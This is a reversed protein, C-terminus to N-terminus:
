PWHRSSSQLERRPRTRGTAPRCAMAPTVPARPPDQRAGSAVTTVPSSASTSIAVTLLLLPSLTFGPAAACACRIHNLYSFLLLLFSYVKEYDTGHHTIKGLEMFKTTKSCGKLYEMLDM